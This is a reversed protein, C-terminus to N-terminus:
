RAPGDGGAHAAQRRVGRPVEQEARRVLEGLLAEDRGPQDALGLAQIPRHPEGGPPPPVPGLGPRLHLQPNHPLPHQPPTLLLPLLYKDSLHIPPPVYQWEIGSALSPFRSPRTMLYKEMSQLADM